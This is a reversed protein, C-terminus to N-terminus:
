RGATHEVMLTVMATGETWLRHPLDPPWRVREGEAFAEAEGAVSVFGRGELCFVDIPWAAAHEHITADRAFRLLALVLRGDNLLVKGEVGRCGEYPLREWGPREFQRVDMM